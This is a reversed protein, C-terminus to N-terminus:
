NNLDKKLLKSARFYIHFRNDIAISTGTKPNRGLRAKRKRTSFTGFGRIEIRNKKQISSSIKGILSDIGIEADQKSLSTSNITVKHILDSKNM